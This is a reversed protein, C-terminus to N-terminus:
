EKPRFSPPKRSDYTTMIWHEEDKGDQLIEAALKMFGSHLKTERDKNFIARVDNCFAGQESSSNGITFTMRDRVSKKLVVTTDGYNGVDGVSRKVDSVYGYVPRERYMMDDSKGGSVVREWQRRGDLDVIANSTLTEFQNKLIPEDTLQELINRLKTRLLVDNSEVYENIKKVFDDVNRFGHKHIAQEMEPPVAIDKLANYDRISDVKEWFSNSWGDREANDTSFEKELDEVTRKFGTDPKVMYELPLKGAKYLGFRTRGLWERQFEDSQGKLYDAFTTSSETRKYPEGGKEQYEKIADYRLKRRYEYSLDDYKKDKYKAEYKEKAIQDFNEAEAPRTVGEGINIYPILVCRCNPHAPPVKVKHMKDSSWIKGDYTGCIMCTRHDLAARWQVGDLVDANAQYMELRSQNATANIVTRALMERSRRNEAMKGRVEQMIRNVTLGEIMGKQVSRFVRAAENYKLDDFWQGITKGDVFPKYNLMNKIETKSLRDKLNTRKRIVRETARANQIAAIEEATYRATSEALKGVHGHLINASLRIGRDSIDVIQKQISALKKFVEEPSKQNKVIWERVVRLEMQLMALLLTDQEEFAEAFIDAVTNAVGQVKTHYDLVDLKHLPQKVM